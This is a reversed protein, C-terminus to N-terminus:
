YAPEYGWESVMGYKGGAVLHKMTDSYMISHVHDMVTSQRPATMANSVLTLINELHEATLDAAPIANLSLLQTFESYSLKGDSDTLPM